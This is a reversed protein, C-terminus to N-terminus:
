DRMLYYFQIAYVSHFKEGRLHQTDSNFESAVYANAHKPIVPSERAILQEIEGNIDLCPHKVVITQLKGIRFVKAERVPTKAAHYLRGEDDQLLKQLTPM